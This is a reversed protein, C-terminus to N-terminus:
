NKPEQKPELTATEKKVAKKKPKTQKSKLDNTKKLNSALWETYESLKDPNTDLWDMFEEFDLQLDSNSAMISCYFMTIFSTMNTPSFSQNTVNEYILYARFSYKLEIDQNNINIKM